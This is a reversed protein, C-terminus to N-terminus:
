GRGVHFDVVRGSGPGIESWPREVEFVTLASTPHDQKLLAIAEADGEGDDLLNAVAEATPNHGIFIVLAADAPVTALAELVTRPGATYLADSIVADAVAGSAASVNEWTEITRAASSVIAHDPLLSRGALWTGAETSDRVGRKTLTREHDTETYPGAKAHRMVILQRSSM